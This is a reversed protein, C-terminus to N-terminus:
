SEVERVRSHQLILSGLYDGAAETSLLVAWANGDPGGLRYESRAEAQALCLVGSAMCAIALPLM